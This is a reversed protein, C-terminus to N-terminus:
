YILKRYLISLGVLTLGFIGAISNVPALLFALWEDAIPFLTTDLAVAVTGLSEQLPSGLLFELAVMLVVVLGRGILLRRRRSQIQELVADTFADEAPIEDVTEFLAELRPDREESM